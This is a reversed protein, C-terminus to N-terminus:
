QCEIENFQIHKKFVALRNDTLDFLRDNIADRDNDGKYYIHFKTHNYKFRDNDDYVNVVKTFFDKFYDYDMNGLSHGFIHIESRMEDTFDIAPYNKNTSKRFFNHEEYIDCDDSVGFVISKDELKGHVKIHLYNNSDYGLEKLILSVSPTYNFDFIASNGVLKQLLKFAESNRDYKSYDITNLYGILANVIELYWGKVVERKEDPGYKKTFRLSFRQFENEIDIWNNLDQENELHEVIGNQTIGRFQDSKIFDTYGTPFGLNRDFGNGIILVSM